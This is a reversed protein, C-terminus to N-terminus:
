EGRTDIVRQAVDILRTNGDQSLRRLMEFGQHRAVAADADAGEVVVDALGIECGEGDYTSDDVSSWDVGRVPIPPYDFSTRVKIGNILHAAM